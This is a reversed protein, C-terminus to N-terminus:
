TIYRLTKECHWVKAGVKATQSRAARVGRAPMMWSGMFSVQFAASSSDSITMYSVTCLSNLCVPKVASSTRPGRACVTAMDQQLMWAGHACEQPQQSRSRSACTQQQQLATATKKLSCPRKDSVGTTHVCPMAGAARDDPGSSTLTIHLGPM